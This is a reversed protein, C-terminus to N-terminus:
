AVLCRNFAFQCFCRHLAVLGLQLAAYLLGHFIGMLLADLAVGTKVMITCCWRAWVADSMSDAGDKRCLLAYSQKLRGHQEQSVHIQPREFLDRSCTSHPTTQSGQTNCTRMNHWQRTQGCGLTSAYRRAAAAGMDWIDMWQHYQLDTSPIRELIDSSAFFSPKGSFM